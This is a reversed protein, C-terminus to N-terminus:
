HVQLLTGFGRVQDTIGYARLAHWLMVANSAIVPKGLWREAEDALCAMALDAGVQVIADVDPGSLEELAVRLTAEDVQAIALSTPCRLGKLRVVEYGSEQFFREYHADMMAPHPTLVAICKVGLLQLASAAAEAGTTVPLGAAEELSSKLRRHGEVGDLFSMATIGLLLWDPELSLADCLAIQLAARQEELFAQAEADTAIARAPVYMRSTHFTVGHPAMAYLEPEFITNTSPVLVGIKARYGLVDPM